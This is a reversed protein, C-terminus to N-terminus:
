ALGALQIGVLQSLADLAAGPEDVKITAMGMAQAPKLNHGIDDLIDAVNVIKYLHWNPSGEVLQRLELQIRHTFFYKRDLQMKQGKLWNEQQWCEVLVEGMQGCLYGVEEQLLGAVTSMAVKEAMNVTVFGSVDGHVGIIGTVTGPDKTPVSNVGVCAVETDCMTLSSEVAGVIAKLMVPDVSITDMVETSGTAM